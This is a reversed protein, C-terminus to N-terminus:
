VFLDVKEFKTVDVIGVNSIRMEPIVVLSGPRHRDWGDHVIAVEGTMTIADGASLKAAM